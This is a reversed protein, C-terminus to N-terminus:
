LDDTALLLDHNSHPLEFRCSAWIERFLFIAFAQCYKICLKRHGPTEQSLPVQLHVHTGDSVFVMLRLARNENQLCIFFLLYILLLLDLILLTICRHDISQSSGSFLVVFSLPVLNQTRVSDTRPVRSLPYFKGFIFFTKLFISFTLIPFLLQVYTKQSLVCACIYVCVCM